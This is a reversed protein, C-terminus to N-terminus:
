LLIMNRKSFYDFFSLYGVAVRLDRQFNRIPLNILRKWSDIIEREIFYDHTSNLSSKTYGYRELFENVNPYFYAIAVVIFVFLIKFRKFDQLM